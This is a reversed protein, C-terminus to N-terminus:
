TLIPLYVRTIVSKQVTTVYKQVTIVCNQVLPPVIRTHLSHAAGCALVNANHYCMQANHYCM